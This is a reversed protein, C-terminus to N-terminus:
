RREWASSKPMSGSMSALRRSCRCTGAPATGLSPGLAPMVMAVASAESSLPRGTRGATPMVPSSVRDPLTSGMPPTFCFSSAACRAPSVSTIMGARLSGSRSSTGSSTRAPRFIWGSVSTASTIRNASRGAASAPAVMGAAAYTALLCQTPRWFAGHGRGRGQAALSPDLGDHQWVLYRRHNGCAVCTVGSAVSPELYDIRLATVTELSGIWRRLNKPISATPSALIAAPQEGLPAVPLWASGADLPPAGVVVGGAVGDDPSATGGCGGGAAPAGRTNVAAGVAVLRM